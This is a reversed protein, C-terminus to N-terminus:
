DSINIKSGPIDHVLPALPASNFNFIETVQFVTAHASVSEYSRFNHKVCQCDCATIQRGHTRM